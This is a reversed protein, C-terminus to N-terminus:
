RKNLLMIGIFSGVIGFIYLSFSFQFTLLMSNTSFESLFVIHILRATLQGAVFLIPPVLISFSFLLKFFLFLPHSFPLVTNRNIHISCFVSSIIIYRRSPLFFVKCLLNFCFLTVGRFCLM